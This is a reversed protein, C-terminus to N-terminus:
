QAFFFHFGWFHPAIMSLVRKYDLLAETIKGNPFSPKKNERERQLDIPDFGQWQLGLIKYSRRACRRILGTEENPHAIWPSISSDGSINFKMSIRCSHTSTESDLPLNWETEIKNWTRKFNSWEISGPIRIWFLVRMWSHCTALLKGKIGAIVSTTAVQHEAM